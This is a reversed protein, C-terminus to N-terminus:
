VREAVANGLPGTARGVVVGVTKVGSKAEARRAGNFLRSLMTRMERGKRICQVVVVQVNMLIVLVVYAAMDHAQGLSYLLGLAVLAVGYVGVLPRWRDYRQYLLHEMTRSKPLQFAHAISREAKVGLRYNLHIDLAVCIVGVGSSYLWLAPAWITTLIGLVASLLLSWHRWLDVGRSLGRASVPGSLNQYYMVGLVAFSLCALRSPANALFTPVGQTYEAVAMVWISTFLLSFAVWSTRLWVLSERMSEYEFTDAAWTSRELNKVRLNAAKVPGLIFGGQTVAELGAQVLEAMSGASDRDEEIMLFKLELMKDLKSYLSADDDHDGPERIGSAYLVEVMRNDPDCDILDEIVAAIEPYKLWAEDLNDSADASTSAILELLIRGVSYLDSLVGREKGRFMEPAIYSRLRDSAENQGFQETLLFNYGWDILRVETFDGLAHEHDGAGAETGVLIVNDPSLDHHFRKLQAYERLTAIILKTVRKAVVPRCSDAARRPMRRLKAMYERLTMGHVYQMLVYRATSNYVCVKNGDPANRVKDGSEATQLAIRPNALHEFKVVKLELRHKAAPHSVTILLSTTGTRHFTLNAKAWWRDEADRDDSDTLRVGYTNRLLSRVAQDELICNMLKLNEIMDETDLPGEDAALTELRERQWDQATLSLLAFGLVGQISELAFDADGVRELSERLSLYLGGLLDELTDEGSFRDSKLAGQQVIPPYLWQLLTPSLSDVALSRLGAVTEDASLACFPDPAQAAERLAELLRGAGDLEDPM